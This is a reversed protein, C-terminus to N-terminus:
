LALHSPWLFNPKVCGTPRNELGDKERVTQFVTRSKQLTISQGHRRQGAHLADRRQGPHGAVHEVRPLHHQRPRRQHEVAVAGGLVCDHRHGRQANQLMFRASFVPGWFIRNDTAVLDSVPYARVVMTQRAKEQTLVQVMGDKLVYSLGRDALVKRLITRVTVKNVKFSVTDEYLDVNADKLSSEDVLITLGAKDQLFDFVKSLRTKDFDVSLVSNLAKLMAVEKETLKPKGREAIRDWNKPFEVAGDIQTASRQVNNLVDM